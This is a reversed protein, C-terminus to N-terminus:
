ADFEFHHDDLGLEKKLFLIDKQLNENVPVGQKRVRQEALFEKEGATYIREQDPSIKANRLDRCIQGTTKEFEELPCFAEVDIALFFHGLHYPIREGDEDFGALMKLFHGQAFAASMIEVFTALGYGKHGGLEEGAGGLPLLAAEKNILKKLIEEADSLPEGQDSIVWGDPIEKGERNYVEVKGRQAIATSFDLLFPFEEDSPFGIAIPNTGLMPEVSFTPSIAPRANTVAMGVCGEDIAMLPYYGAIGFHTSSKVAVSGMGFEKAKDIALQMAEHAIVHGMGLNGNIVATTPTEREVEINTEALTQGSILRDYYYKLRQVGHSKIGRLDSTILVDSVIDADEEPVGLAVFVDHIFSELKNVDIYAIDSM